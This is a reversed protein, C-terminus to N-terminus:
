KRLWDVVPVGFFNFCFAGLLIFDVALLVNLIRGGVAFMMNFDKLPDVYRIRVILLAAFITGLIPFAHWGSSFVFLAASKM